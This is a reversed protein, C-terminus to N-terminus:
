LIQTFRRKHDRFNTRNCSNDKPALQMDKITVTCWLCPHHGTAGTLGYMEALFAYDSFKFIHIPRGRWKTIELDSVCKKYQTLSAKLNVKKDKAEMVCFLATNDVSNPNKRNCM